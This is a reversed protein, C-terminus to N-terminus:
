ASRREDGCCRGGVWELGRWGREAAQWALRAVQDGAAATLQGTTEDFHTHKLHRTCVVLGPLGRDSVLLNSGAGLLTIPLGQEKAWNLGAQLDETTRPALYLEAPGGVRFSTLTSLSAQPKILCETGPIRIPQVSRGIPLFRSPGMDITKEISTKLAAKISSSAQACPPEHSLTM